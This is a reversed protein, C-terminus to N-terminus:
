TDLSVPVVASTMGLPLVHPRNRQAVHQEIALFM